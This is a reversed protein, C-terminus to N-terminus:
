LLPLEDAHLLEDAAATDASMVLTIGARYSAPIRIHSTGNCVIQGQQRQGMTERIMNVVQGLVNLRRWSQDLTTLPRLDTLSNWHALVDARRILLVSPSVLQHWVIQEPLCQLPNTLYIGAPGVGFIMQHHWADPIDCGEGCHQLNLTAIPAAGKSLWYHLWHSLSVKREPYFAFFKTIVAGNTALSIGRALDKHTAGAMSRSMLYKPLPTGPERLRTGVGRILVELSFPVGLALLANIASTAGCASTAIQTVQKVTAEQESWLMVKDVPLLTDLREDCLENELNSEGSQNFAAQKNLMLKKAMMRHYLTSSLNVKRSNLNSNEPVSVTTADSFLDSDTDRTDGPSILDGNTNHHGYSERLPCGVNRSISAAEWKKIKGSTSPLWPTSNQSNVQSNTNSKSEDSPRNMEVNKPTQKPQSTSACAQKAIVRGSSLDNLLVLDAEANDLAINQIDENISALDSDGTDQECSPGPDFDMELFDMEPSSRGSHCPEEAEAEIPPNIPPGFNSSSEDSGKYTYICYDEGDSMDGENGSSSDRRERHQVATDPIDPFRVKQLGSPGPAERSNNINPRLFCCTGQSTSGISSSINNLACKSSYSSSWMQDAEPSSDSSCSVKSPCKEIGSGHDVNNKMDTDERNTNSNLISKHKTGATSFLETNPQTSQSRNCQIESEEVNNNLKFKDSTLHNQIKKVKCTKTDSEISHNDNAGPGSENKDEKSNM